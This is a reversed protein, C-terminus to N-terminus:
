EQWQFYKRFLLARTRMFGARFVRLEILDGSLHDRKICLLLHENELRRQQCGFGCRQKSAAPSLLSATIGEHEKEKGANNSTAEETRDYPQIFSYVSQFGVLLLGKELVALATIL